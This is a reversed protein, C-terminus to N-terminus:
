QRELPPYDRFSPGVDGVNEALGPHLRHHRENLNLIDPRRAAASKGRVPPQFHPLCCSAPTHYAVLLDIIGTLAPDRLMYPCEFKTTGIFRGIHSRRMLGASPDFSPVIVMPCGPGFPLLYPMKAGVM